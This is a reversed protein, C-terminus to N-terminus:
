VWSPSMSYNNNLEWPSCFENVRGHIKITHKFVINNDYLVPCPWFQTTGREVTRGVERKTESISFSILVKAAKPQNKNYLSTYFLHLCKIGLWLQPILGPWTVPFLHEASIRSTHISSTCKLRFPFVIKMCRTFYLWASKLVALM